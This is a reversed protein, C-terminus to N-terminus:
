KEIEEYRPIVTNSASSWIPMFAMTAAIFKSTRMM